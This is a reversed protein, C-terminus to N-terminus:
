FIKILKNTFFLYGIVTFFALIFGIGIILIIKNKQAMQLLGPNKIEQNSKVMENQNPNIAEDNKLDLEKRCFPCISAGQRIDSKCFPCIIKGEPFKMNNATKISKKTAGKILLIVGIIVIPIGVIYPITVIGIIILLIGILIM